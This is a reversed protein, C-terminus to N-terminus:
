IIGRISYQLFLHCLINYRIEEAEKLHKENESKLLEAMKSNLKENEDAMRKALEAKERELKQRMQEAEDARRQNEAEM